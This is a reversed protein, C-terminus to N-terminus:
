FNQEGNRVASRPQIDNDLAIRIRQNAPQLFKEAAALITNQHIPNGFEVLVPRTYDQTRKAQPGRNGLRLEIRAHVPIGM